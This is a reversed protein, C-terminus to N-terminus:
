DSDKEQKREAVELCREYKEDCLYFCDNTSNHTTDCEELCTNYLQECIFKDSEQAFLLPSYLLFALLTLKSTFM